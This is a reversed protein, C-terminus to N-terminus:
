EKALRKERELDLSGRLAEIENDKLSKPLLLIEDENLKEKYKQAFEKRSQENELNPRYQELLIFTECAKRIFDSYTKSNTRKMLIEIQDLIKLPIRVTIPLNRELKKM